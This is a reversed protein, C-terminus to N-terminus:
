IELRYFTQNGIRAVPTNAAAWGPHAVRLDVYSDAGNTTDPLVGRVAADAIALAATFQPDTTDVAEMKPRNVDDANWCSFQWPDLCVGVVDRGWWRPHRARNMVVSAVAAMGGPPEGRAEGWITRALVDIPDTLDM